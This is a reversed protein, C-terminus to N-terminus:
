GEGEEGSGEGGHLAAANEQWVAKAGSHGVQYVRLGIGLSAAIVLVSLAVGVASRGAVEAGNAVRRRQIADWLM